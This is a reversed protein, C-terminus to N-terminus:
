ACRRGLERARMSPELGDRARAVLGHLMPGPDDWAMGSRVTAMAAFRLIELAGLGHARGARLDDVSWWTARKPTRCTAPRPRGTLDAFVLAPINVGAAAGLHHWLSFRANVELLWLRGDPDRKLDLKAVGTLGIREVLERGLARVDPIETVELATSAGFRRPYTRIKRGTFEAVRDGAPDVYVHYSEVASEPGPIWAQAILTAGAAQAAPWHRRLDDAHRVALAKAHSGLALSRGEAHSALKLVLPYPLDSPPDVAPDLAVSPPVPLHHAEALELWRQKDTLQEVLEPAGISFRFSDSLAARHRSVLMLDPDSQFFLVPPERRSRGFDALAQVLAHPDGEPLDLVHRVLRSHSVIGRGAPVACAIGARSLPRVLDLNGLVTAVPDALNGM